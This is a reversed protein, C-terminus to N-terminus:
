NEIKEKFTYTLHAFYTGIVILITSIAQAKFPSIGGLEVLTPLIVLGLALSALHTLNFRAYEVKWNGTSRFTFYRQTIFSHTVAFFHGFIATGIYGIEKGFFLYIGAFIGYGFITNWLGTILYRFKSNQRWIQRFKFLFINKSM